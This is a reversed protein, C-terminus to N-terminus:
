QAEAEVQEKRRSVQAEAKVSVEREEEQHLLHDQDERRASSITETKVIRELDFIMEQSEKKEEEEEGAEEEAVIEEIEEIKMELMPVNEQLIVKKEVNSAVEEKAAVEEKDKQLDQNPKLVDSQQGKSNLIIQRM